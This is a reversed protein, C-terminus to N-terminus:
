DAVAGIIAGCEKQMSDFQEASARRVLTGLAGTYQKFRIDKFKKSLLEAVCQNVVDGNPKGDWFLGVTKSSLDSFRAALKNKSKRLGKIEAAPNLVELNVM